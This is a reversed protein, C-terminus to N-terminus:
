RGRQFRAPLPAIMIEASIDMHTALAELRREVVDVNLDAFEPAIQLILRNGDRTLAASDLLSLAGGCLTYALRLALGLTVSDAVEEL